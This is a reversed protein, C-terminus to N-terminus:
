GRSAGRPQALRQLVGALQPNAAPYERQVRRRQAFAELHESATRAHRLLDCRPGYGRPMTGGETLYGAVPADWPLAAFVPTKLADAIQHTTYGRGRRSTEREIVLIGLASSGTGHEDLEARLPDIVHRTLALGPETNHVVLVVLDAQHLVPAPTLQQHLRGANLALRGADVFVDHDAEHAMVHLVDSLASWTRSLAAAQGPDTLGPLVKRHGAGDIPWLHSAFATALADAGTREAAALHYLGVEAGVQGQLFGARVTGGAPDCEALLSPRKSALTLALASATVGCSKASVLATVPM